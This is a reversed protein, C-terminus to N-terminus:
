NNEKTESKIIKKRRKRKENIYINKEEKIEYKGEKDAMIYKERENSKM